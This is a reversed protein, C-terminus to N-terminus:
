VINEKNASPNFGRNKSGINDREIRHKVILEELSMEKLPLEQFGEM